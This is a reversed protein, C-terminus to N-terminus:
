SHRWWAFKFLSSWTFALHLFLFPKPVIIKFFVSFFDAFLLLLSLSPGVVVVDISSSIFSSFLLLLLLPVMALLYLYSLRGGVVFWFLNRRSFRLFLVFPLSFFTAKAFFFFFPVKKAHPKPPPPRRPWVGSIFNLFFGLFFFSFFLFFHCSFLCDDWKNNHVFFFRPSAPKRHPRPGGHVGTSGRPGGGATCTCRWQLKM